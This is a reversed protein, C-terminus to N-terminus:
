SENLKKICLVCDKFYKSGSRTADFVRMHKEVREKGCLSVGNKYYHTRRNKKTINGSWGVREELKNEM